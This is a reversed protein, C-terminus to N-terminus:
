VMGPSFGPRDAISMAIFGAIVAVILGLANDGGIFKLAAAFTNYTTDDPNSSNIGWFFSIAVLIGGGVGFPLMNSVGSMLHKYFASGIGGG